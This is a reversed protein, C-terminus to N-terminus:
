RQGVELGWPTFVTAKSGSDSAPPTPKCIPYSALHTILKKFSFKFIAEIPTIGTGSCIHCKTGAFLLPLVVLRLGFLLKEGNADGSPIRPLVRTKTRGPEPGQMYAKFLHEGGVQNDSVNQSNNSLYFQVPTTSIPM